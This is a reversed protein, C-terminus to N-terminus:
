PDQFLRAIAECDHNDSIHDHRLMYMQENGFRFVEVMRHNHLYELLTEGM